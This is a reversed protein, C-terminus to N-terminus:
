FPYNIGSFVAAGEGGYGVDVYGAVFPEAIGRFGIGGVPHLDTAPDESLKRFVRGAEAFPAIEAIAHTGVIDTDYVRTRFEFNAVSLNNDTFRGVGYGRLTEQDYLLSDEGGLRAMSWFPTERGAPTYQIYAHAAITLRPMVTWYHRFDTGMRNYSVSSLFRRDANGEYLTILGGARPIDVSDRTDYTARIENYIESGGNIGKVKPYLATTQPLSNFAGKLIRVYRPRAVIALQLNKTINWGFKGSVYVQQTTYNSQGSERSDNGIGFFRETPDREFFIRGEFSWWKELTRGTAYDLDVQRQITQHAEALAYWQTDASPYAFYRVAGGPGLDTNDNIDPAFISTIEKHQNEFLAAFLVGFTVGGNPDTAVEPIPILTFPWNAPNLPAPWSSPNYPPPWSQPQMLSFAFVPLTAGFFILAVLVARYFRKM